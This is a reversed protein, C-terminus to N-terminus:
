FMTLIKTFFLNKISKDIYKYLISPLGLLHITITNLISLYTNSNTVTKFIKHIISNFETLIVKHRKINM